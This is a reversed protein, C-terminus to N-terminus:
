EYQEHLNKEILKLEQEPDILYIPWQAKKKSEKVATLKQELQAKSDLAEM